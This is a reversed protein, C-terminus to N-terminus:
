QEIVPLVAAQESVGIKTTQKKPAADRQRRGRKRLLWSLRREYLDSLRCAVTLVRAYYM